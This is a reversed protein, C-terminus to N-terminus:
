TSYPHATEYQKFVLPTGPPLRPPNYIWVTREVDNQIYTGGRSVGELENEILAIYIGDCKWAIDIGEPLKALTDPQTPELRPPSLYWGVGMTAGGAILIAAASSILAQKMTTSM